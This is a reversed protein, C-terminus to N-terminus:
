RKNKNERYIKQLLMEIWSDPSSRKLVEGQKPNLRRNRHSIRSLSCLSSDPQDVNRLRNVRLIRVLLSASLVLGARRVVQRLRNDPRGVYKHSPLNHLIQGLLHSAVVQTPHHVRRPNQLIQGIVRHSPHRVSSGRIVRVAQLIQVNSGKIRPQLIPLQAKVVRQSPHRVHGLGQTGRRGQIRENSGKARLNVRLKIMQANSGKIRPHLILLHAKVVRHSPQRASGLGQTGHPSTRLLVLNRQLPHGPNPGM